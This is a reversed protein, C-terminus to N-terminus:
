IEIEGILYPVAYGSLFVRDKEVRCDLEGGRKSLQHAKLKTKGLKEAWFPVLAAHASGTVPDELPIDLNADFVRSVFDSTNGQATIVTCLYPLGKLVDLTPEENLVDEESAVTIILDRGGYAKIPNSKFAKYVEKPIEIPKPPRSPFDLTITNNEEKKAKLIGSKSSFIIENISTDVYNFIVFAAALTAHGCLDIEAYPMFWRIEYINDKKVFYGTESLNNEIAINLLTKDDLWHPLHCIAAPNGGFLKQTFADIQYIPIKM